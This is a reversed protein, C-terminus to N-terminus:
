HRKFFVFFTFIACALAGRQHWTVRITENRLECDKGNGIGSGLLIDRTYYMKRNPGHSLVKM